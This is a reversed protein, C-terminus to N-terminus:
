PATQNRDVFSRVQPLIRPLLGSVEDVTMGAKIHPHYLINLIYQDYLDFFGMQVDDNFMTWPIADTDNIPGLAQLLEEYICDRFIFESVDTVLIVDARV